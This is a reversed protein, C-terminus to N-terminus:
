LIFFKKTQLRFASIWMAVSSFQFAPACINSSDKCIDGASEGKKAGGPRERSDRPRLNPYKPAFRTLPNLMEM